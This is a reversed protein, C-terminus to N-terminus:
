RLADKCIPITQEMTSMAGRGAPNSAFVTFTHEECTQDEADTFKYTTATVTDNRNVRPGSITITYNIPVNEFTGNPPNCSLTLISLENPDPNLNFNLPPNPAGISISHSLSLSHLQLQLSAQSCCVCSSMYM